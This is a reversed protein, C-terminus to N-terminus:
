DQQELKTEWIKESVYEYLAKEKLREDMKVYQKAWKKFGEIDSPNDSYLEDAMAEIVVRCEPVFGQYKEAVEGFFDDRKPTREYIEYVEECRAILDASLEKEFKQIQKTFFEGHKAKDEQEARAFLAQIDTIEDEGIVFRVNADQLFDTLRVRQEESLSNWVAKTDWFDKRRGDTLKHFLIVEPPQIAVEHGEVNITPANDYTTRSVASSNTLKIDGNATENLFMVEFETASQEDSRFLFANHTKEDTIAELNLTNRDPDTILFGADTAAQFFKARESGMIAMDLDQHDRDWEGDLLDIGTGGAIYPKINAEDFFSAVTALEKNLEVKREPSLESELREHVFKEIDGFQSEAQEPKEASMKPQGFNPKEPNM